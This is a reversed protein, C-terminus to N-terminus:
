LLNIQNKIYPSTEGEAGAEVSRATDEAVKEAPSKGRLAGM